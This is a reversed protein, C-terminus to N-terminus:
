YFLINFCCFADACGVWILSHEAIGLKFVTFVKEIFLGNWVTLVILEFIFVEDDLLGNTRRATNKINPRLM